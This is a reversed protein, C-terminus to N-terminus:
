AAETSRQGARVHAGGQRGKETPSAAGGRAGPEDVVSTVGVGVMSQPARPSPAAIASDRAMIEKAESLLLTMASEGTIGDYNRIKRVAQEIASRLRARTLEDPYGLIVPVVTELWSARGVWRVRKCSPSKAVFVALQQEFLAYREAKVRSVELQAASPPRAYDDDGDDWDDEWRSSHCGDCMYFWPPCPRSCRSCHVVGDKVARRLAINLLRGVEALKDDVMQHTVDLAGDFRLTAWQLIVLQRALDELHEARYGSCKATVLDAFGIDAGVLQRGLMRLMAADSDNGVDCPAKAFAWADEVSLLSLVSHKLHKSKALVRLREVMPDAQVVTAWRCSLLETRALKAWHTLANMLQLPGQVALDDLGPAIFGARVERYAPHQTITEGRQLTRLIAKGDPEFGEVGDLWGVIGEESLGFRGARGGIQALEWAHLPRRMRGDFKNTESFIVYDAPLNVGHGIVDTAVLVKAEGEEFRRIEARRVEPPLAGYLVAAPRSTERLLGALHLVAKKSFAVLVSREPIHALTFGHHAVTLPCLRELFHMEVDDGLVATILPAAGVEGTLYLEDVEAGALLRTWAWGREPDAAWQVEDLVLLEAELPAMEATCCIIPAHESIREEGTVLGVKDEGLQSRLKTYAEYALMRLPAAYVGKGRAALHELARYTKGSNTPGLYACVTHPSARRVPLRVQINAEREMGRGAETASM